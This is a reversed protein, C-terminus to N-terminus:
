IFSELRAFLWRQAADQDSFVESENGATCIYGSELAAGQGSTEYYGERDPWKAWFFRTGPEQYKPELGCKEATVETVIPTSYTKM